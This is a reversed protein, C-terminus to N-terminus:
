PSSTPSDLETLFKKNSPRSYSLLVPLHLLLSISSEDINNSIDTWEKLYQTLENQDVDKANLGRTFCLQQLDALNLTDIGERLMALDTCQLLEVDQLLFSHRRTSLNLTKALHWKHIKHVKTLYDLGFPQGVFLDKSDLLEDVSPAAGRELKLLIDEFVKRKGLDKITSTHREMYHLISPYYYLRRKLYFLAFDIRQEPTWFHRCLLQRPFLYAIPYVVYNAFPLSSILVVPGVRVMDAPIQLFFPPLCAVPHSLCLVLPPTLMDTIPLNLLLITPGVRLLESPFQRYNDLEVRSFSDLNRGGWLDTTVKLYVKTDKFFDRIGDKFLKYVKFAKPYKKEFSHEVKGLYKIYKQVIFVKVKGPPKVEVHHKQSYFRTNGSYPYLYVPLVTPLQRALSCFM